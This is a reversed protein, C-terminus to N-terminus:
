MLQTETPNSLRNKRSMGWLITGLSGPWDWNMPRRISAVSRFHSDSITVSANAAIGAIAIWLTMSPGSSSAASLVM